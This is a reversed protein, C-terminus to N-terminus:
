FMLRLGAVFSLTDTGEGESQAFRATNGFKKEWNMGIYPAVERLIEYRLRLGIEMDSVGAGVGTPEDDALAINMELSPELALRQTFLIDYEAELRVSTDGKDSIFASADVEFWQPALGNVGFVAYTRQPIPNVDYRVGIHADFFDSILRQYRLQFEATEFKTEIQLYEAEARLTIKNFDDGIRFQGEVAAVDQGDIWRNELQDIKLLTFWKDDMVEASVTGNFGLSSIFIGLVFLRRM